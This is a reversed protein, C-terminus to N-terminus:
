KSMTTPKGVIQEFSQKIHESAQFIVVRRACVVHAQGTKPNRGPRAIKDRLKFSGFGSLKVAEGSALALKMEDFFLDVIAKAELKTLAMKDFLLHTLTAKTITM